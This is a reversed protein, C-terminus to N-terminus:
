DPINVDDVSFSTLISQFPDPAVTGDFTTCTFCNPQQVMMESPFLPSKARDKGSTFIPFLCRAWFLTFGCSRQAHSMVLCRLTKSWLMLDAWVAPSEDTLDRVVALGLARGENKEWRQPPKLGAPPVQKRSSYCFLLIM